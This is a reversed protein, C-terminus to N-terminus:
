KKTKKGSLIRIVGRINQARVQRPSKYISYEMARRNMIDEFLKNLYEMNVNWGNREKMVAFIRNVSALEDNYDKLPYSTFFSYNRDTHIVLPIIDAKEVIVRGNQVSMVVDAMGGLMTGQIVQCAIFNGLSYFCPVDRGDESRITDKYQLVHPHTGIIIDAGADAFFHAWKIQKPIPEYLYECGWHPFVAVIDAEQKARKIQSKIRGKSFVNMVDVCHPHNPPVIHYNMPGTYNLFAIRLGNRELIRIKDADETNDHIGTFVLDGDAKNWYDVTERIAKFGKDLAHNSAHTVLDFGARRIADGAEMPSGFFPFSSINTRDKVYITEQNIVSIDAGKILSAIHEFERDFCYSGNEMKAAKFVQEHLLNDGVARLSVTSMTGGKRDM